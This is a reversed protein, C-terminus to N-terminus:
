LSESSPPAVGRGRFFPTDLVFFRLVDFLGVVVEARVGGVLPAPVLVFLPSFSGSFRAFRQLEGVADAAVFGDSFDRGAAFDGEDEDLLAENFARAFFKVVFVADGGPNQYFGGVAFGAPEVDACAVAEGIDFSQM